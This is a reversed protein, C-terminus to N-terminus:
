KVKCKTKGTFAKKAPKNSVDAQEQEVNQVM